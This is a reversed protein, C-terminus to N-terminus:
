GIRRPGAPGQGSAGEGRVIGALLAVLLALWLGEAWFPAARFARWCLVVHPGLVPVSMGLAGAAALLVAGAASDKAAGALPHRETGIRDVAYELASNMAEMALVAASAVIVLGVRWAGGEAMAASLALYALVTEIRANGSAAYLGGMGRDADRARGGFRALPSNAFSAM